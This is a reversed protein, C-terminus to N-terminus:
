WKKWRKMGQNVDFSYAYHVGVSNLSYML